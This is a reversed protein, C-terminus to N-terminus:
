AAGDGTESIEHMLLAMELADRILALPGASRAVDRLLFEECIEPVGAPHYAEQNVRIQYTCVTGGSINGATVEGIKRKQGEAGFPWVEINMVLMVNEKKM